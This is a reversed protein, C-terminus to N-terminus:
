QIGTLRATSSSTSRKAGNRITAEFDKLFIAKCYALKDGQQCVYPLELEYDIVRKEEGKTDAYAFPTIPKLLTDLAGQPLAAALLSEAADHPPVFAQQGDVTILRYIEFRPSETEANQPGTVILLDRMNQGFFRPRCWEGIASRLRVKDSVSGTIPETVQLSAEEWGCSNTICLQDYEQGDVKTTQPRGAHSYTEGCDLQSRRTTMTETTISAVFTSNTPALRPAACSALLISLLLVVASTRTMM